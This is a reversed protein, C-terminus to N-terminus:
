HVPGFLDKVNAILKDAVVGADVEFRGERIADKIQAVRSADFAAGGEGTSLTASVESLRVLPTASATTASEGPTRAASKVTAPDPRITDQNGNVKM